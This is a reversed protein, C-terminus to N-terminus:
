QLVKECNSEYDFAAFNTLVLNDDTLKIDFAKMKESFIKRVQYVSRPYNNRVLEECKPLQRQLNSIRKCFKDCTSCCFWKCIKNLDTVYYIVNNYRSLNATCSFRRLSQEALDGDIKKILSKLVMCWFIYKQWDSLSM